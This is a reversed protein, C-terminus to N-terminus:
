ECVNLFEKSSIFALVRECVAAHESNTLDKVLAVLRGKSRSFASSLLTNGMAKERRCTLCFELRDFVELLKKEEESLNQYEDTVLVAERFDTELKEVSKVLEPNGWLVPAPIDGAAYEGMDHTMAAKLLSAPCDPFLALMLYAVGWQHEALSQHRLTPLAHMRQVKGSSWGKLVSEPPLSMTM